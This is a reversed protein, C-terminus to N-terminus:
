CEAVGVDARRMRQPMGVKGRGPPEEGGVGKAQEEAHPQERHPHEDPGGTGCGRCFVVCPVASQFCVCTIPDNENKM